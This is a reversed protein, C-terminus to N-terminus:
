SGAGAKNKFKSSTLQGDYLKESYFLKEMESAPLPRSILYGQIGNCHNSSLFDAQESTEVGEAMLELRLHHGLSIITEIIAKNSQDITLNRVFSQDIKLQDVPFLHLYSFSSYGTGFDDIAIQVGLKKLKTLMSIARDVDMTMSETIELELYQAKVQYKTLCEAIVDVLDEQFFQRMSLNVSVRKFPFNHDLWLRIQRCAEKIVWNGIAIILGTEEALPIFVGPSIMGREPHNWRVLAEVGMLKGTRLDVQPQYYLVLENADISKRLENELIIKEYLKKNSNQHYFVYPQALRKAEHLAITASRLFQEGNEIEKTYLSIGITADIHFKFEKEQIPKQLLQLIRKAFKEIMAEDGPNTQIIAFEDGGVRAVTLQLTKCLHDLREAIIAIFADGVDNGLSDNVVRFRNLNILLLAVDEFQSIDSLVEELREKIYYRNPLGTLEDYYALYNVKEQASMLETIDSFSYITNLLEGKEDHIQASDVALFIKKGDKRTYLCILYQNNESKNIREFYLGVIPFEKENVTKWKLRHEGINKMLLEDAPLGLIEEAKRNVYNITDNVDAMMIGSAVTNVITNLRQESQELEKQIMKQKLYPEELTSSYLGKMLFYYSVSKYIHGLFNDFDFVSQYFTFIIESFLAFSIASILMLHAADKKKRYQVLLLLILCLFIFSICYELRIKLPTVGVGEVMLVPLHDGVLYVVGAIGLFLAISLSFVLPRHKMAIARDKKALIMFLIIGLLFRSIIWFWTPRLVSNETIFFPMGNFSLVHVIDILAICLFLAGIYLRHRSLTHTFIMWGQLAIASAISISILELLIHIALYNKPDYLQEFNEFYRHILVLFLLGVLVIIATRIERKRDM